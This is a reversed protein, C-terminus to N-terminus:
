NVQLTTIPCHLQVTEQFRVTYDSLRMLWNLSGIVDDSKMALKATM